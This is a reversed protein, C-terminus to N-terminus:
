LQSLGELPDQHGMEFKAPFEFKKMKGFDLLIHRLSEEPGELGPNLIKQSM